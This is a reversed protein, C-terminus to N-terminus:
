ELRFLIFTLDDPKSPENSAASRMRRGCTQALTETATALSGSRITEVIEELAMNDWLGDTALLVTDRAALEIPAGVEIRMEASGVMNSLLHREDHHLADEEDIYGAELAYGVPSHAITQLKLKGQQGVVLVASDGVHYPRLTHRTLEAVALTTGAGTGQELVKRNTTEVGDLIATRLLDESSSIGSLADTICRVAANSASQGARQGGVGDAVALVARAPDVPILAAADENPTSRDPSSVSYLAAQGSAIGFLVASTREQDSFFPETLTANVPVTGSRAVM